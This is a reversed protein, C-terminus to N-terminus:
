VAHTNTRTHIERHTCTNCTHTETHAGTHTHTHAHTHMHTHTEAHTHTHTNRCTHTHTHTWTFTHTHTHPRNPSPGASRLPRRRWNSATRPSSATLCFFVWVTSCIFVFSSTHKSQYCCKALIKAASGETDQIWVCDYPYMCVEEEEEEEEEKRDSNCQSDLRCSSHLQRRWNRRAAMSNSTYSSQWQGCLQEQQRCFHADRRYINPRRTMLVATASQHHHWNWQRSCTPMSDTTAQAYDWSWLRSGCTLSASTMGWHPAGPSSQHPDEKRPLHCM